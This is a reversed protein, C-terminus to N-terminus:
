LHGHRSREVAHEHRHLVVLALLLARTGFGFALGRRAWCAELLDAAGREREVVGIALPELRDPQSPHGLVLLRRELRRQQFLQVAHQGLPGVERDHAKGVAGWVVPAEEVPVQWGVADRDGVEVVHGLVKM